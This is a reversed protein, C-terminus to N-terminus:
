WSLEKRLDLNLNISFTDFCSYICFSLTTSNSPSVILIILLLIIDEFVTACYSYIHYIDHVIIYVGFMCKTNLIEQHM